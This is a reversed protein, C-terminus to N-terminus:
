PSTDALANALAPEEGGESASRVDATTSEYNLSRGERVDGRREIYVEYM